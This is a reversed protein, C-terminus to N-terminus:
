RGDREPSGLRCGPPPGGPPIGRQDEPLRSVHAAIGTGPALGSAEPDIEEANVRYYFDGREAVLDNPVCFEEGGELVVRYSESTLEDWGNEELQKGFYAFVEDTTDRTDYYAACSSVESNGTPKIRLGGYQPFEGFAEREESSCDLAGPLAFAGFLLLAAGGLVLVWVPLNNRGRARSGRTAAVGASTGIAVAEIFGTLFSPPGIVWLPHLVGAVTALLLTLNILACLTAVSLAALVVRLFRGGRSGSALHALGAACLAGLALPFTSFIWEPALISLPVRFLGGFIGGLDRFGGRGRVTGGGCGGNRWGGRTFGSGGRGGGNGARAAVLRGM